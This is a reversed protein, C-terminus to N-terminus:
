NTLMSDGTHRGGERSRAGTERPTEATEHRVRTFLGPEHAIIVSVPEAILSVTEDIAQRYPAERTRNSLLISFFAALM